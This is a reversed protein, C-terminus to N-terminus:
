QGRTRQAFSRRRGRHTHSHSSMHELTRAPGIAGGGNAVCMDAVGSVM